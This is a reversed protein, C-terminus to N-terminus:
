EKNLKSTYIQETLPIISGIDYIEGSHLSLIEVNYKGCFEIIKECDIHKKIDGNLALIQPAILGSAGGFFGHSVGNLRVCSDDIILVDIGYNDCKKAIGLDSTIIANENIICVSCKSYGQKVDIKILDETNELISKDTYKFNHILYKGVRAANYSIDKPYEATLSNKGSIIQINPINSFYKLNEPSVIFKNDGIHHIVIDPHGSVAEYLMSTIQTTYIKIDLDNLKNIAERNIRCDLLVSTIKRKPLNPM